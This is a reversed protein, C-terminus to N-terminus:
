HSRKGDFLCVFILDEIESTNWVKHFYADPILVIDGAEVSIERDKFDGQVARIAKKLSIDEKEKEIGAENWFKFIRMKAM